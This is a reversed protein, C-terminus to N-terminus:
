NKKRRKREIIKRRKTKRSKIRVSAIFLNKNQKKKRTKWKKLKTTHFKIEMKGASKKKFEMLVIGREM